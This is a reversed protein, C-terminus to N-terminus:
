GRGSEGASASGTPLIRNAPRRIPRYEGGGASLVRGDPLLIATSHYCRDVKEEAMTKWTGDAANWIEGARIPNGIVLNDFGGGQTGGTVFVTGDPLITANHQRRAFAMDKAFQWAPANQNLDITECTKLPPDGGGVFLVKGSQYMVSPAYDCTRGSKRDGVVTWNGNATPDLYQTTIMPGSLFAKGNPAVHYRPYYTMTQHDVISRWNGDKWVQQVFNMHSTQDTGGSVVATNDGMTLLTPYWRGRAGMSASASWTNTKYDFVSTHPEGQNDGIHGGAVLLRGDSLLTHGSCFLNYKKGQATLPNPLKSFTGTKRDWLRPTCDHPDLGENQAKERRSWYLVKGNPLLTTHIAVNHWPIVDSWKGVAAPDQASATAAMTMCAALTLSNTRM